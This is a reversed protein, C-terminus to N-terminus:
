RNAKMARSIDADVAQAEEFRKRRKERAPVFSHDSHNIRTLNPNERHYDKESTTGFLESFSHRFAERIYVNAPDPPSFLLTLTLGCDTCTQKERDDMPCEREEALGCPTCQFDYRAM